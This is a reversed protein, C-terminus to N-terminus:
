RDRKFFASLGARYSDSAGAERQLQVELALQETLGNGASAELARKTLALGLESRGALRVAVDHARAPLDEDEVCQWILGWDAALPAPVPEALLAMGRARARGALRPLIWTGGSDPILGLKTFSQVFSASRGAIVIDCALALNAGAGAATGQVACVVPKPMTSITEVIRNLGAELTEGLDITAGDLIPRRENLDQGACFARGSAELVVCRVAPDAALREVADRLAAVMPATLSNLKEPRDIRLRAIGGAETTCSVHQTM